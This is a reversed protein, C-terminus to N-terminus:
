GRNVEGVRECACAYSPLRAIRVPQPALLVPV